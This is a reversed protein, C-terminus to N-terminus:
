TRQPLAEQFISVGPGTELFRLVGTLILESLEALTNRYRVETM